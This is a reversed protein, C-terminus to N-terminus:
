GKGLFSRDNALGTRMDGIIARRLEMNNQDMQARIAAMDSPTMGPHFVPANTIQILQGGGALGKKAIDNPIITGPTKPAFLEMGNEGVAYVKGPDVPGGGARFGGFIAGLIGGVNGGAGATGLIGALPGSGMIAAQAAADIINEALKKFIDAATAGEERMARTISLIEGGAFRLADQQGQFSTRANEAAEAARGMATSQEDIKGRLDDTIAIGSQEAAFLLETAARAKEKEFTNLGVSKTEAELLLIRRQMQENLREFSSVEKSGSEPGSLASTKTPTNTQPANPLASSKPAFGEPSAARGRNFERLKEDFEELDKIWSPDVPSGANRALAIAKRLEDLSLPIGATLKDAITIKANFAELANTMEIIAGKAQQSWTRSLAQWKDDIEQAKRILENSIIAGSEQAQSGFARLGAAGSALATVMAPGGQRGFFQAAINLRDSESATNQILNAVIALIDANSKLQGNQDKLAVGNDALFRGLVGEGDAAKSVAIAFRQMAGGVDEASGGTQEVAFQLEQFQQATLGVRDAVDGIKALEGVTDRVFNIIREPNLAAFLQQGIGQFIGTLVQFGPNIRSFRDEIRKASRDALLDAEQLTKALRDIKAELRVVLKAEDAM